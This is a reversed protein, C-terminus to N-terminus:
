CHAAHVERRLLGPRSPVLLAWGARCTGHRRRRYMAAFLPVRRPVDRQAIPIRRDAARPILRLAARHWVRGLAHPWLTLLGKRAPEAAHHRATRRPHRRQQRQPRRRPLARRARRWVLELPWPLGDGDDADAPGDDAGAETWLHREDQGLLGVSPGSAPQLVHRAHRRLLWGPRSPHWLRAGHLAAHSLAHHRCSCRRLM